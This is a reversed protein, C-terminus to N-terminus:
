ALTMANPEAVAASVAEQFWKQFQRIPNPDLDRRHLEAKSYQQGPEINPSMRMRGNVWSSSVSLKSALRVMVTRTLIQPIVFRSSAKAAISAPASARPKTKQSVLGRFIAGACAAWIM